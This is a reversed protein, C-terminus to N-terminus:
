EGRGWRESEAVPATSVEAAELNGARDSMTTHLRYSERGPWFRRIMGREGSNAYRAETCDRTEDTERAM